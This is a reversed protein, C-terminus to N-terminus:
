GNVALLLLLLTKNSVYCLSIEADHALVIIQLSLLYLQVLAFCRIANTGIPVAETPQREDDVVFHAVRM